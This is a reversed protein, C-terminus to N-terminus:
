GANLVFSHAETPLCLLLQVRVELAQIRTVYQATQLRLEYCEERLRAVSEQDWSLTAELCTNRTSPNKSEAVPECGGSSHLSPIKLDDENVQFFLFLPDYTVTSLYIRHQPSPFADTDDDFFYSLVVRM